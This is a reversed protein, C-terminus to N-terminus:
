NTSEASLDFYDALYALTEERLDLFCPPMQLQSAEGTHEALVEYALQSAKVLFRIGQPTTPTIGKVRDYTFFHQWADSWLAEGAPHRPRVQPQCELIYAAMSDVGWKSVRHEPPIDLAPLFEGAETM